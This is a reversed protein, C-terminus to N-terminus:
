CQQDHQIPLFHTLSRLTEYLLTDTGMV